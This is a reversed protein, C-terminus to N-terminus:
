LQGSRWLRWIARHGERDMGDVGNYWRIAIEQLRRSSGALAFWLPWSRGYFLRTGIELRRLKRGFWTDHVSRAYEDIGDPHGSVLKPLVAAVRRGYEFTYSIGEGMLPDVGAADGALLVNPASVQTKRTLWRIPFSEFRTGVARFEELLRETSRRLQAGTKPAEVAYAGFNVHPIGGILCPFAWGYGRLGAPVDKFDFDYRRTDFGDWSTEAVPVDCMVAKGVGEFRDGILSRRILSGSGDAAVVVPSHYVNRETEIRVGGEVREVSLAREGDRVEIGRERCSRVLLHDFDSRRIVQALGAGEYCVTKGPIEVRARDVPAHPVSLPIELERLCDLTHPILGGACIKHRPHVAKDLVVIDRALGPHIRQLYLASATGAPGAGVIVVPRKEM